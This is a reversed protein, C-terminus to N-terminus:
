NFANSAPTRPLAKQNRRSPPRDRELVIKSSIVTDVFLLVLGQLVCDSLDLPLEALAGDHFEALGSAIAISITEVPLM